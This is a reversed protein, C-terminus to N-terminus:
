PDKPSERERYWTMTAAIGDALPTADDRFRRAFKEHDVVFLVGAALIVDLSM